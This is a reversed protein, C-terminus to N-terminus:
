TLANKIREFDLPKIFIFDVLRFNGHDLIDFKFSPDVLLAVKSEPCARKINEVIEMKVKGGFIPNLFIIRPHDAFHDLLSVLGSSVTKGTYGMGRLFDFLTQSELHDEDVVLAQKQGVRLAQNWREIDTDHIEHTKLSETEPAKVPAASSPPETEVAPASGELRIPPRERSFSVGFRFNIGSDDMKFWMVKGLIKKENEWGPINDLGHIQLWGCDMLVDRLARYPCHAKLCNLNKVVSDCVPCVQPKASILWNLGTGSRHVDNTWVEISDSTLHDSSVPLCKVPIQLPVRAAGRKEAEAM